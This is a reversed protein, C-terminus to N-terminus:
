HPTGTLCLTVCAGGEPRNALQIKGGQRRMMEEAITLGLGRRADAQTSYGRKLAEQLAVPSFGPGEDEVRVVYGKGRPQMALFVTRSDPSHDVANQVVNQFATTFSLRDVRIDPQAQVRAQVCLNKEAAISEALAVWEALLDGTIACAKEERQVGETLYQLEKLYDHFRAVGNQAHSLYTRQQPSVVTEELLELNGQILTLPTRVDHTIGRLSESLAQKSKWEEQLAEELASKMQGIAHLVDHTEKLNTKPLEFALNGRAIEDNVVVLKNLDKQIFKAFHNLLLLFGVIWMGIFLLLQTVELYPIWRRLNKDAFQAAVTFSLVVNQDTGEIYYVAVPAVMRSVVAQGEAEAQAVLHAYRDPIDNYLLNGEQDTVKVHFAQPIDEWALTGSTIGEKTEALQVEARNAPLIVGRELLGVFIGFHITLLAIFFFIQTLLFKALTRKLNTAGM